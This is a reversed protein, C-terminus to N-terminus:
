FRARALLFRGFLSLIRVGTLLFRLSGAVSFDRFECWLPGALSFDDGECVRVAEGRGGARVARVVRFSFSVFGIERNRPTSM